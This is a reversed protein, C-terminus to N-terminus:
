SWKCSKTASATSRMPKTALKPAMAMLIAIMATFLRSVNQEEVWLKMFAVKLSLINRKAQRITVRAM